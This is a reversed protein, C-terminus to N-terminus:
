ENDGKNPTESILRGDVTLDPLVGCNNQIVMSPDTGYLIIGYWAGTHRYRCAWPKLPGIPHIDSMGSM